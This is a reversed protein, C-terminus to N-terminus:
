KNRKKRSVMQLCFSSTCINKWIKRMNGSIITLIWTRSKGSTGHKRSDTDQKEKVKERQVGQKEFSELVDKGIKLKIMGMRIRYSNNHETSKAGIIESFMTIKSWERVLVIVTAEKSHRITCVDPMKARAVVDPKRSRKPEYRKAEGELKKKEKLRKRAKEMEKDGHSEGMIEYTGLVRKVTQKLEENINIIEKMLRNMEKEEKESDDDM